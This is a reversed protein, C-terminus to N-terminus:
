AGWEKGVRREESRMCGRDGSQFVSIKNHGPKASRSLFVVIYADPHRRTLGTIPGLGYFQFFEPLIRVPIRDQEVGGIPPYYQIKLYSLFDRGPFGPVGNRRIVGLGPTLGEFQNRSVPATASR